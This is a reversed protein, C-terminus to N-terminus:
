GRDRPSPSTYLLCAGRGGGRTLRMWAAELGPMTEESVPYYMEAREDVYNRSEAYQLAPVELVFVTRGEFLERGRQTFRHAGDRWSAVLRRTATEYINNAVVYTDARHGAPPAPPRRLSRKPPM